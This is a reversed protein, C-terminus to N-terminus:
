DGTGSSEAYRRKRLEVEQETRRQEAAIQNNLSHLFTKAFARVRENDDNLWPQIQEIKRKYAEVLGFEGTTVGTMSLVVDVGILLPDGLPLACVIAKCLEYLFSQGHYNRMVAVIFEIDRRDGSGVLSTL